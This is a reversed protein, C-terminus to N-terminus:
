EFGWFGWHIAAQECKTVTYRMNFGYETCLIEIGNKNLKM